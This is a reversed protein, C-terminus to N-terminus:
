PLEIAVSIVQRNHTPLDFPDSVALQTGDQGTYVLWRFPGQGFNDPDVWWTKTDANGEDLHGRWGDVEYWDGLENQWEITTWAEPVSSSTHLRITAGGVPIAPVVTPTPRPPLEGGAVTGQGQSLVMFILTLMLAMVFAVLIRRSRTYLM